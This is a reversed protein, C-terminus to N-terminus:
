PTPPLLNSCFITCFFCQKRRGPLAHDGFHPLVAVAVADIVSFVRRSYRLKLVTKPM